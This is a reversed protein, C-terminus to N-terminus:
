TEVQAQGLFPCWNLQPNHYTISGVIGHYDGLPYEQFYTPCFLRSLQLSRPFDNPPNLCMVLFWNLHCTSPTPPTSLLKHCDYISYKLTLQISQFIIYGSFLYLYSIVSRITVTRQLYRLPSPGPESCRLEFSLCLKFKEVLSISLAASDRALLSSYFYQFISLRPIIIIM